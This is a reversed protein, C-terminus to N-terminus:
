GGRRRGQHPGQYNRFETGPTHYSKYHRRGRNEPPGQPPPTAGTSEFHPKLPAQQSFAPPHTPQGYPPMPPQSHPPALSAPLIPQGGYQQIKLPPYQPMPQPPPPPAQFSGPPPVYGPQYPPPGSYPPPGYQSPPPPGHPAPPHSVPSYNVPSPQAYQSRSPVPEYHAFRFNVPAPPQSPKPPLALSFPPLQPPGPPPYPSQHTPPTPGTRSYDPTYPQSSPPGFQTPPPLPHQPGSRRRSDDWQPHQGQDFSNHLPPVFQAPQNHPSRTYAMSGTSPSTAASYGLSARRSDNASGPREHPNFGRSPPPAMHSREISDRRSPPRDLRDGVVQSTAREPTSNRAEAAELMNKIRKLPNKEPLTSEPVYESPGGINKSSWFQNSPSRNSPQTPEVSPTPVQRDLSQEQGHVIADLRADLRLLGNHSAYHTGYNVSEQRSSSTSPTQESLVSSKLERMRPSPIDQDNNLIDMIRHTSVKAPSEKKVAEVERASQIGNAEFQPAHNEIAQPGKTPSSKATELSMATSATSLLEFPSVQRRLETQQAPTVAETATVTQQKDQSPTETSREASVSALMLLASAQENPIVEPQEPQAPAKEVESAADVLSGINFSAVAEDRDPGVFTAFGGPLNYTSDDVDENKAVFVRRQDALDQRKRADEWLREFEIFARSRSAYKAPLRDDQDESPHDMRTPAIINDEVQTLSSEGIVIPPSVEDDTATGDEGDIQRILQMARYSCRQLYEDQLEQFRNYFQKNQIEVEGNYVREAEELRLRRESDVQGLRAQFHRDLAATIAEYEPFLRHFEPADELQKETRTSLEVLVPKLAKTVSRYSMKINLQRRLDTEINVDAHPQRRRGPLRKPLKAIPGDRRAALVDEYNHQTEFEPIQVPSGPPTSADTLDPPPETLEPLPETTKRKKRRPQKESVDVDSESRRLIGSPQASVTKSSQSSDGSARRKKTSPKSANSSASSTPKPEEPTPAENVINQSDVQDPPSGSDTSVRSRKSPRENEADSQGDDLQALDNLSSRRSSGGAVSPAAPSTTNSAAKSAARTTMHLPESPQLRSTRGGQVSNRRKVSSTRIGASAQTKSQPTTTVAKTARYKRKPPM